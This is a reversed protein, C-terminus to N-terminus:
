EVIRSSEGSGGSIERERKREKERERKREKERERKREGKKVSRCCSPRLIESRAIPPAERLVVLVRGGSWQCVEHAAVVVVVVAAIAAIAAVAVIVVGGGGGGGAVAVAVVVVIVVAVIAVIRGGPFRANLKLQIDM